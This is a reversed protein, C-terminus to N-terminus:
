YFDGISVRGRHTHSNEYGFNSRRKTVLSLPYTYWTFIEDDNPSSADGDEDDDDDDSDDDDDFAELLPSPSEVFGGLRAQWRAIRSVRTNVQCLENSLTDLRADMRQLQVMIADLTVGSTFSSLAFTSPTWSTPPAVMWSRRSHLQAESRKVTATDIACMVHFHDSIPFPVSFHSLIRTIALPFINKDHTAMDRFVDILSLIFHSSFDITLHELLSLLFDLMPSQLPTIILYSCRWCVLCIKTSNPCDVTVNVKQRGVKEFVDEM